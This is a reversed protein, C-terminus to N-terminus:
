DNRISYTSISIPTAVRLEIHQGPSVVIPETVYPRSSGIPDAMLRVPRAGSGEDGTLRFTGTSAGGVTAVRYRSSGRLVYVAVDLWHNNTVTVTPRESEAIAQQAASGRASACGVSALALMVAASASVATRSSKM